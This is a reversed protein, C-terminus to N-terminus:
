RCDSVGPPLNEGLYSSLTIPSGHCNLSVYNIHLYAKKSNSIIEVVWTTTNVKNVYVEPEYETKTCGFSRGGNVEHPYNCITVGQAISGALKIDQGEFEPTRASLIKTIQEGNHEFAAICPVDEGDVIPCGDGLIRMNRTLPGIFFAGKDNSLMVMAGSGSGRTYSYLNPADSASLAPSGAFALSACILLLSIRIKQM